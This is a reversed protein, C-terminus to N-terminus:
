INALKGIMRKDPVNKAGLGKQEQGLSGTGALPYLIVFIQQQAM